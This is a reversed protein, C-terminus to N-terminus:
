KTHQNQAHDLLLQYSDAMMSDPARTVADKLAPIFEAPLPDMKELAVLATLDSMDRTAPPKKDGIVEDLLRRRVVLSDGDIAILTDVDIVREHGSPWDTGVNEDLRRIISPIASRAKPGIRQLAGAAATGVGPSQLLPVIIPMSTAPPAVTSLAFIIASAIDDSRSALAASLHTELAPIAAHAATGISDLANAAAAARAPNDMLQVLHPVIVGPEYRGFGGLTKVAYVSKARGLNTGDDSTSQQILLPVASRAKSGVCVLAEYAATPYPEKTIRDVLFPVAEAADNKLGCLAWTADLRIEEHPDRMLVILPRLAKKGKHSLAITACYPTWYPQYDRDPPTKVREVLEAVTEADFGL